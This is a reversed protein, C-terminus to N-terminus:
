QPPPGGPRGWPHMHGSFEKQRESELQQLKAQQDPTLLASIQSNVSEMIKSARDTEDHHLAELQNTADTVIPEIKAQQDATLGLKETLHSMWHRKMMQPGPPHMFHPGLGVTLLIGTGVGALFILALVLWPKFIPSSM